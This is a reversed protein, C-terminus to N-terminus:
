HGGGGGGGRAAARQREYEDRASMREAEEKRTRNRRQEKGFYSENYGTSAMTGATGIAAGIPQFLPGLNVETKFFKQVQSLMGPMMLIAGFAVFARFTAPTNGAFAGLFPPMWATQPNATYQLPSSAGSTADTSGGVVAAFLLLALVAPFVALNSLLYKFWFGFGSRGPIADFVILIPGLIIFAVISIYAQIMTLLTKFLVYIIAIMLIFQVALKGINGFIQNFLPIGDFLKKVIDGIAEAPVNALGSVGLKDSVFPFINQNFINDSGSIISDNIFGAKIFFNAVLGMAVNMVDILFGAIAFSFTVLILSLIIKPIAAQISAYAQGNIKTRFMISIGIFMFIPIYLVYAVNRTVIWFQQLSSISNFGQQPTGQAYTQPIIHADRGLSAFYGVASAPPNAYTQGMMNTAFGILGHDQTKGQLNPTSSALDGGMIRILGLMVRNFITAGYYSDTNQIGTRNAEDINKIFDDYNQDAPVGQQTYGTPTTQASIVPAGFALVNLSVFVVACLLTLLRLFSKPMLELM